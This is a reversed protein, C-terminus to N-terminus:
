KRWPRKDLYTGYLKNDSSTMGEDVAFGINLSKFETTNVFAVM